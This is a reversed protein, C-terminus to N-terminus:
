VTVDVRAYDKGVGQFTYLFSILEMGSVESKIEHHQFSPL